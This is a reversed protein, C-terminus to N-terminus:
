ANSPYRSLRLPRAFIGGAARPNPWLKWNFYLLIRWPSQKIGEGLSAVKENHQLYWPAFIFHSHGFDSSFM